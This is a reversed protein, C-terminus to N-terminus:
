FVVYEDAWAATVREVDMFARADDVVARWEASAVAAEADEFTDFWVEGLGAYSPDTGDPGRACVNQVYRRVGPVRRVLEIHSTRWRKVAEDREVDPRPNWQTLRKVM